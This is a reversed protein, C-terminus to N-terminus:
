AHLALIPISINRAIQKSISKHFLGELFGKKPIIMVLLDIEHEGIAMEIGELPDELDINLYPLNEDGYSRDYELQMTKKGVQIGLIRSHHLDALEYVIDIFSEEGALQIETALGYKKPIRIASLLPVTLVPCSLNKMSAYSNSGFLSFSPGDAGSSGMIVMYAHYEKVVAGLAFPLDGFRNILEMELNENGVGEQLEELTRNLLTKSNAQLIDQFDLNMNAGVSPDVYSNFLIFRCKMGSMLKLGYRIAHMSNMSFDTAFIITKM